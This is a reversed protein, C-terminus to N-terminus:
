LTCKSSHPQQVSVPAGSLSLTAADLAKFCLLDPSLLVLRPPVPPPAGEPRDVASEAEARLLLAVQQGQMRLSTLFLLPVKMCQSSRPVPSITPSSAKSPYLQPKGQLRVCMRLSFSRPATM